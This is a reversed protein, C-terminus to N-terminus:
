VEPKKQNEFIHHVQSFFRQMAQSRAAPQLSCAALLLCCAVPLLCCAAPVARGLLWYSFDVSCIQVVVFRLWYGLFHFFM